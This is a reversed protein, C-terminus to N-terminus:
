SNTGSKTAGPAAVNLNMSIKENYPCAPPFCQHRTGSDLILSQSGGEITWFLQKPYDGGAKDWRYLHRVGDEFMGQYNGTAITKGPVLKPRVIEWETFSMDPHQYRIKVAELEGSPIAEKLVHQGPVSSLTVLKGNSDSTPKWVDGPTGNPLGFGEKPSAESAVKEAQNPAENVLATPNAPPTPIPGKVSGALNITPAILDVSSTSVLQVPGGGTLIIENAAQIHIKGDEAYIYGSGGIAVRLDTGARCQLNGKALANLDSGSQVNITQSANTIISGGAKIKFDKNANFIANNETYHFYSDLIFNYESMKVKNVQTGDPHIEKFSGARHYWHLREANPTDDVELVHGSESEYVHNYPYKAAYPSPPESFGEAAIAGGSGGTMALGDFGAAEGSALNALKEGLVSSEIKENRALRSTMPENLRTELPYRSIPASSAGGVSATGDFFKGKKANVIQDADAQNYKGDKNVDFKYNKPDYKSALVGFGITNGPLQETNKFKGGGSTQAADGVPPPVMEPPRPVSGPVLQDDPTPDSYGKKPDSKQTDIGPIVGVIVPKQADPGDMFFGWCWDGEKLGVTNRGNDIPLSPVAWPLDQTPMELRDETHWGFIRVKARGLFLPDKRDEIVGKWWIFGDKGLFTSEM